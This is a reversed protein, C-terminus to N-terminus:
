LSKSKRQAELLYKEFIENLPGLFSDQIEFNLNTNIENILLKLSSENEVVFSSVVNCFGLFGNEFDKKSLPSKLLLELQHDKKPVMKLICDNYLKKKTGFHYNLSAINCAAVQAIKRTSVGEFGHKSFLELAVKLIREKTDDKNNIDINL